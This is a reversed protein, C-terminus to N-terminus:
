CDIKVVISIQLKFENDWKELSEVAERDERATEQPTDHGGSLRNM